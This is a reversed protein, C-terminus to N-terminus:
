GEPNYLADVCNDCLADGSVVQTATDDCHVCRDEETWNIESEQEMEAIYDAYREDFDDYYADGELTGWWPTRLDNVYAPDHMDFYRQEALREPDKRNLEDLLADIFESNPPLEDYLRELQRYTLDSFM